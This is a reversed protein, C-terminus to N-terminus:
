TRSRLLALQHVFASPIHGRPSPPVDWTIVGELGNLYRTYGAVLADPFRPEGAGWTGGLYTLIHLQAGDVFRSLPHAADGVPLATSIEGATYDEFETMSIVPVLVGPNFAVISNPNGAKLAAAFSAFNPADAHRYMEDAFYCGDVWCGSVKEGWRLSWERIVAEWKVQFEALRKGTRPGRWGGPWPDVFGWEWGLRECIEPVAAPAGNPLYVLLRIGRPRLADALDSVLDRDSCAYLDAGVLERYTANPACYHGSNQGITLCLYGAGIEALQEALGDVDFDEARRNWEALSLGHETTSAAGGLFHFFVGWRADRFWDTNARV